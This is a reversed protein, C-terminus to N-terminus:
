VAPPASIWRHVPANLLGDRSPAEVVARVRRSSTGAPAGSLVFYRPCAEFRRGGPTNALGRTRRDVQHALQTSTTGPGTPSAASPVESHPPDPPRASRRAKTRARRTPFPTVARGASADLRRRLRRSAHPGARLAAPAPQLGPALGRHRDRSRAPLLVARPQATRRASPLPLVRRVPEAVPCAPAGCPRDLRGPAPAQAGAPTGCGRRAGCGSCASAM